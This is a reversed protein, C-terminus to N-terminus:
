KKILDKLINELYYLIESISALQSDIDQNQINFTDEVINFVSSEGYTQSYAIIKLADWNGQPIPPKYKGIWIKFSNAFNPLIGISPVTWYYIEQSAPVDTAITYYSWGGGNDMNSLLIINVKDIGNALWTIYHIDGFTLTEGGPRDVRIYEGDSLILQKQIQMIQSQIEQISYQIEDITIAKVDLIIFNFM